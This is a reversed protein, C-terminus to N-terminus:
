GSAFSEISRSLSSLCMRATQLLRSSLYVGSAKEVIVQCNMVCSSTGKRGKLVTLACTRRTNTWTRFEFSASSSM